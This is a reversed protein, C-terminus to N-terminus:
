RRELDIEEQKIKKTEPQIQGWEEQMKYLRSYLNNYHEALSKSYNMLYEMLISPDSEKELWSHTRIFEMIEPESLFDFKSKITSLLESKESDQM